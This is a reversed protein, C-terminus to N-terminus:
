TAQVRLVRVAGPRPSRQAPCPGRLVARPGRSPRALAARASGACALLDRHLRRRMGDNHLRPVLSTSAVQFHRKSCLQLHGVVCCPRGKAVVFWCDDQWLVADTSAQACKKCM